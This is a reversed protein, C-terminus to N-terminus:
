LLKYYTMYINYIFCHYHYASLLSVSCSICLTEVSLLSVFIGVLYVHVQTSLFYSTIKKVNVLMCINKYKIIRVLFKKIFM